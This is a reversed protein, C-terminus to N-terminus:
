AKIVLKINEYTNKMVEDINKLDFWRIEVIDEETQPKLKGNGVYRMRFWSTAKLAFGGDLPYIHYTNTLFGKNVLDAQSMGCEECVERVACQEITEGREQWGKPLDWRGFRNIFLKRGCGDSVLGGGASVIRTCRGMVALSEDDSADCIELNDGNEGTLFLKVASETKDDLHLVKASQLEPTHRENFLLIRNNYFIKIM